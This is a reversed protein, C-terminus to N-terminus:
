KDFHLDSKAVPASQVLKAFIKGVELLATDEQIDLVKGVIGGVTLVTDGKKLEKLLTEQDRELQAKPRLVLFYYIGMVLLFMPALQSLSELMPPDPLLAPSGDSNLRLPCVREGISEIEGLRM